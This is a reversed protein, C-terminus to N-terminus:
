ILSHLNTAKLFDVTKKLSNIDNGLLEQLSTTLKCNQRETDYNRCDILIHEVTIRTGCTPCMAPDEKKAFHGHTLRTHGIRLRTIVRNIYRDNAYSTTWEFPTNKIRRLKNTSCTWTNCWTSIIQGNVLRKFDEFPTKINIANKQSAGQKALSDAKENGKINVHAPVWCLTTNGQKEHLM